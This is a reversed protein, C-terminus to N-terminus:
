RKPEKPANIWSVALVALGALILAAPWYIAAVGVCVLLSGGIDALTTASSRTIRPRRPKETDPM